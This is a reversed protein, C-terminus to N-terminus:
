CCEADKDICLGMRVESLVDFVSTQDNVMPNQFQRVSAGKLIVGIGNTSASLYQLVIHDHYAGNSQAPSQDFLCLVKDLTFM